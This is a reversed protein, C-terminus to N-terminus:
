SREYSIPAGPQTRRRRSRPPSHLTLLTVPSCTGGSRTRCVDRQAPTCEIEAAVNLRDAPLALQDARPAALVTAIRPQMRLLHPLLLPPLVRAAFCGLGRRKERQSKKERRTIAPTLTRRKGRSSGEAGPTLVGACACRTRRARNLPQFVRPKQPVIRWPSGKAPSRGSPSRDACRM